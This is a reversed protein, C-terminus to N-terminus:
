VIDAEKEGESSLGRSLLKSIADNPDNSSIEDLAAVRTEEALTPWDMGSGEDTLSGTWEASTETAMTDTDISEDERHGVPLLSGHLM